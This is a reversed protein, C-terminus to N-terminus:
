LCCCPQSLSLIYNWLGGTSREMAATLHPFLALLEQNPAPACRLAVLWLALGDELLNLEDPQACPFRM